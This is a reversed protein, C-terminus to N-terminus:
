ANERAKDALRGYFQLNAKTRLKADFSPRMINCQRQYWSGDEYKDVFPTRFIAREAKAYATHNEMFLRTLEKTVIVFRSSYVKLQYGDQCARMLRSIRKRESFLSCAQQYVQKANSM